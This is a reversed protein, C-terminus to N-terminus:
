VPVFRDAASGVVADLPTLGDRRLEDIRSVLIVANKVNMGILGLLGLLSFFDFMKGTAALGGVVGIAVLPIMLCIIVPSRYNGFLLLLIVFILILTLPMYAALAGNSEDRSEQEGFVKMEYGDPLDVAKEVEALLSEYLAITNVGRRPDCQAKMVREGNYRKIVPSMFEFRFGDSAQEISFAKGSQSFVPMAQMNTLNTTAINDEKLLIPMVRDGERYTGLTYGETAVRLWQAARSRSVGIRQGKIQSYQPLWVPIRNGWSNRVNRTDDRRRMLDTVLATLRRLTDVNRGIFGIEITADPVPSLKFLSSRLWVDPMSAAVYEDLRREVDATQRKSHLEVLINGYNPRDSQSGSALYYRPPTSGATTSVRAVEPQEGLWAAIEDLRSQSAEINYGEPLLMDARFYPKDLQPFFNQPMRGMVYLSLMFLAAVCAVTAWRYRILMRVLSSFRSLRPAKGAASRTRLQLHPRHATHHTR